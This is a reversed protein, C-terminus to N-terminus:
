PPPFLRRHSTITSGPVGGAVDFSALSHSLQISRVASGEKEVAAIVKGDVVVGRGADHHKLVGGFASDNRGSGPVGVPVDGHERDRISLDPAPTVVGVM